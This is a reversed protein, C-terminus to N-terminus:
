DASIAQTYSRTANRDSSAISVFAVVLVTVLALIVLTSVLAVGRRKRLRIDGPSKTRRPFLLPTMKRLGNQRGFFIIQLYLPSLTRSGAARRYRSLARAM